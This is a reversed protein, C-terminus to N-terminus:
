REWDELLLSNLFRNKRLSLSDFGAGGDLMVQSAFVSDRVTLRDDGDGLNLAVQGEFISSVIRVHDNVLGESQFELSGFYSDHINMSSQGVSVLGNGANGSQEIKVRGDIDSRRIDVDGGGPARIALLPSAKDVGKRLSVDQIRVRGEGNGSVSGDAGLTAYNGVSIRVNGEVSSNRLEVESGDGPALVALALKPSAKDIGGRIAVDRFIAKGTGLGGLGVRSGARSRGMEVRVPGDIDARRVDVDGGGPARIALLPSAKDIGKRLSVDRIRVRGEGNTVESRGEAPSLDIRVRGAIDLDSAIVNSNRVSIARPNTGANVHLNSLTTHSIGTPNQLEISGAVRLAQLRVQDNGEGYDLQVRGVLNTESGIIRLRDDGGALKIRLGGSVGEFTVPSGPEFDNIATSRDPVIRFIGESNRAAVVDFSNNHDDAIAVLNGGVVDIQVIGAFLQRAELQEPQRLRKSKRLRKSLRFRKADRSRKQLHENAFLSGVM